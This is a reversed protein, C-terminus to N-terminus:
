DYYDYLTIESVYKFVFTIVFRWVEVTRWFAGNYGRKNWGGEMTSVARSLKSKFRGILAVFVLIVAKWTNTVFSLQKRMAFTSGFVKSGINVTRMPIAANLKVNSDTAKGKLGLDKPRSSSSFLRMQTSCPHFALGQQLLLLGVMVSGSMM